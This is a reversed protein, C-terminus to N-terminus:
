VCRSTYLLCYNLSNQNTCAINAIIIKNIIESGAYRCNKPSSKRLNSRKRYTKQSTTSWRWLANLTFIKNLAENKVQMKIYTYLLQKCVIHWFKFIKAKVQNILTMVKLWKYQAIRILYCPRCSLGRQWGGNGSASRSSCGEKCCRTRSRAAWKSTLPWKISPLSISQNNARPQSESWM